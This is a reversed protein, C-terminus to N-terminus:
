LYEALYKTPINLQNPDPFFTHRINVHLYCGALLEQAFTDQTIEKGGV